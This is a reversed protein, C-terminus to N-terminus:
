RAAAAENKVWESAVSHSSWLVVVSKATNLEREIVLDYAQGTIIERDWRVSMGPNRLRECTQPGM